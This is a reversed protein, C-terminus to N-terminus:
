LTRLGSDLTRMRFDAVSPLNGQPTGHKALAGQNSRLGRGRIFRYVTGGVIIFWLAGIVSLRAIPETMHWKMLRDLGDPTASIWAPDVLRHPWYQRIIDVDTTGTSSLYSCFGVPTLAWLWVAAAAGATVMTVITITFNRKM